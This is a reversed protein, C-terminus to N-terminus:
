RAARAGTLVRARRALTPLELAAVARAFLDGADPDGPDYLLARRACGAADRPRDEERLDRGLRTWDRAREPVPEPRPVPPGDVGLASLREVMTAAVEASTFHGLITERAREGKVRAEEPQEFARRLVTRLHEVSPEAWRQGRFWPWEAWADESVPVLDCDVLYANDDNMFELNGSWRTGITPRGCAMAEMLPRGWGEARSPQVYANAARYLRPMGTTGPEVDLVVTAPCHALERGLQIEIFAGLERLHETVPKAFPTVLLVLTVDDDPSFADLYARLLVDWGKRRSWSFVSLFVFGSVDPLPLPPVVPGYIEPRVGEPVVHLRDPAVGANGFTEVNFASPVWVEDLENCRVVWNPPLGDTEWM